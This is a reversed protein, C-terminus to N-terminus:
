SRVYGNEIRCGRSHLLQCDRECSRTSTVIPGGRTYRLDSQRDQEGCRIVWIVAIEPFQQRAEGTKEKLAQETDRYLYGQSKQVWKSSADATARLCGDAGIIALQELGDAPAPGAPKSIIKGVVGYPSFLFSSKKKPAQEKILPVPAGIQTGGSAIVQRRRFPISAQRVHRKPEVYRIYCPSM